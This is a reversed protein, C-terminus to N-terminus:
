INKIWIAPRVYSFGVHNGTMACYDGFYDSVAVSGWNDKGPTRLQWFGSDRRTPRQKHAYETPESKRDEQNPFYKEVEDVSLLFVRDKTDPGGDSKCEKNKPTSITTTLIQEKERETFAVNIFGDNLMKRVFSDAWVGKQKVEDDLSIIDKETMLLAKGDEKALVRWKLPQMTYDEDVPFRGFEISDGVSMTELDVTSGEGSYERCVIQPLSDIPVSVSVIDEGLVIPKIQLEPPLKWYGDPNLLGYLVGGVAIIGNSDALADCDSFASEGIVADKAVTISELARCGSFAGDGITKIRDPICCKTLGSRAFAYKGIATASSPFDISELSECGEFMSQPIETMASPLKVNKLFKCGSFVSEEISTFRDEVDFSEFGTNNFIGRSLVTIHSPIRINKLNECDWFAYAGIEKVSDPIVIEELGKCGEFAKDCIKTIGEELVIRKLAIREGYPYSAKFLEKPIERITGPIVVSSIESRIKQQVENLRAAGPNFTEPDIATVEVKGFASPIVVDKDEGKYSTIILTGDDLKKTSWIKKLEAASLPKDDLSLAKDATEKKTAEPGKENQRELVYGVLEPKVNKQEQIHKFLTDIDKPKSLWNENLAYQMASPNNQEVIAFMLDWKKVKEVMNTKKVFFDFLKESCFKSIFVEKGSHKEWDPAYYDSPFFTISEVNMCSMFRELMVSIYADDKEQLLRRFIWRDHGAFVDLRNMPVRGAIMDTRYDSLEKVGLKQLEDYIASDNYLISYYLIEQFNGMNKQHLVELVKVRESDDIVKNSYGKVEYEPFLYWAFDVPMDNNNSIAVKCDYKRKLAPSFEFVFTAGGDILTEVMEAGSFRCALGLAKATFEIPSQEALVTKVGDKDNSIVKEELLEVKKLDSLKAM